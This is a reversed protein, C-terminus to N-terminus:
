AAASPSRNCMVDVAFIRASSTGGSPWGRVVVDGVDALEEIDFGLTVPEQSWSGVGQEPAVLDVSSGRKLVLIGLKGRDVQLRLEIRGPGTMGAFHQSGVGASYAWDRPDTEIRTFDRAPFATGGNLAAVADHPIEHRVPFTPAPPSPPPQENFLGAEQEFRLFPASFRAALTDLARNRWLHELVEYGLPLSSNNRITFTGVDDESIPADFCEPTEIGVARFNLYTMLCKPCRGCNRAPDPGQWCFKLSQLVQPYKALLAVKDTRGIQAGDYLVRLRSTSLLPVAIPNGGFEFSPSQAYGDSAVLATSHRHDVTHLCSVLQAAYSDLWNQVAMEKLNTRVVYRRLGYEDFVPQLRDLLRAFGTEDALPVDFGHVILVAEPPVTDMGCLRLSHRVVTFASDIGGSYNAVAPLARTDGRDAVVEDASIRIPSYRGPHVLSWFRQYETLNRLATKSLRGEVHLNQRSEMLYHLLGGVFGDLVDLETIDSGQLEFFVPEFQLQPALAPGELILEIRGGSTTSKRAARLTAM